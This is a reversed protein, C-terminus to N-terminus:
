HSRELMVLLLNGLRDVLVLLIMGYLMVLLLVGLCHWRRGRRLMGGGWELAGLLRYGSWLYLMLRLLRQVRRNGDGSM